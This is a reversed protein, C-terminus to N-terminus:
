KGYRNLYTETYQEKSYGPITEALLAYAEQAEKPLSTFRKTATRTAGASDAAGSVMSNKPAFKDPYMSKVVKGVADYFDRGVRKDGKARLYSSEAISRALLDPDKIWENDEEWERYETEIANDNSPKAVVKKEPEKQALKTDAIQDDIEAVASYDAQELAAVKQAKLDRLADTYAQKSTQEHMEAFKKVSEQIETIRDELKKNQELLKKNNARLIPGLSEGFDIFEQASKYKPHASPFKDPNWGQALAQQEIATDQATTQEVETHEDTM